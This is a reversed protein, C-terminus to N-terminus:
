LQELYVAGILGDLLKNLLINQDNDPGNTRINGDMNVDGPSYVVNLILSLSGGLTINQIKDQDNQPGNYKVNMNLDANGGRMLWNGNVGVTSSYNQVQYARNANATFDHNASGDNFDLASSSRIGLHNRHRIVVFYNGPTVGPFSVSTSTGDLDVITGDNNVFVAKRAVIQSPASANRLEVLIWDVINPHSQFFGYPVSESGSYNFNGMNYPQSRAHQDLIGYYNLYTTMLRNSANYPGQLLVKGSFSLGSPPPTEAGNEFQAANYIDLGFQIQGTANYHVWDQLPYSDCNILIANNSPVACYAEQAARVIDRFPYATPAYIRGLVKKYSQYSFGNSSALGRWVNDVAVFFKNLNALYANADVITKADDEGQMWIVGQLELKHGQSSAQSVALGLWEQFQQWRVGSQWLAEGPSPPRWDTALTTGGQGQKFVLRKRPQAQHLSRFLSAELGFQAPDAYNEPMTNVGVNLPQWQASFAGVAPNWIMTNPVVGRYLAAQQSNMENATSWGTNSQGIIIYFPVTTQSVAVLGIFSFLVMFAFASIKKM